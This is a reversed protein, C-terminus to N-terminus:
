HAIVVRQVAHGSRGIAQLIYAGNGIAGVPLQVREQGKSAVASLVIRGAADTLTLLEVQDGGSFQVFLFENAPNPQVIMNLDDSIEPVGVVEVCFLNQNEDAYQGDSEALVTGATDTIVYSGEGDDCCLGNGFEDLITFIYCGNTLCWRATDVLGEEFDPYPGGSYLDTGTDTALNWTVDSGYNDLTILLSIFAGPNSVNFAYSWMDNDAVEDVNNNPLSSSVELV